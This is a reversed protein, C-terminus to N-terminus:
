ISAVFFRTRDALDAEQIAELLNVVGQVAGLARTRM